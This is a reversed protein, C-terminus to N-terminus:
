SLYTDRFVLLESAILQPLDPINKLFFNQMEDDTANAESMKNFEDIADESLNTIMVVNVREEVRKLIDSKIQDLVGPELGEYDKKESILKDVFAKLDLSEGANKTKDNM